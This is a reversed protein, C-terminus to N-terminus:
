KVFYLKNPLKECDESHGGVLDSVQDGINVVIKFGMSEIEERISTKVEIASRKDGNKRMYLGDYSVGDKVLNRITPHRLDETRGTVLFIVFQKSRAWKLFEDTEKLTPAEAQKVWAKFDSWKFESTKEFYSRNDLLTEDIDSVVAMSRDDPHSALYDLCTKRASEIANKFEKRYESTHSFEIGKQNGIDSPEEAPTGYVKCPCASTALPALILLSLTVGLRLVFSRNTM